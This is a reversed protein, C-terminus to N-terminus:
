TAPTWNLLMLTAEAGRVALVNMRVWGLEGTTGHVIPRLDGDTHPFPSVEGTYVPGIEPDARLDADLRALTENHPHAVYTARVVPLAHPAWIEWFDVLREERVQKDLMLWRMFNFGDPIGGILREAEENYMGPLLNWGVDNIYAPGRYNDLVERYGDPLEVSRYPPKAPLAYMLLYECEQDTLGLLEATKLLVAEQPEPLQGRELPGYFWGESFGLLADMDYQTVRGRGRPRPTMRGPYKAELASRDLRLRANALLSGLKERREKPSLVQRLHEARPTHPQAPNM